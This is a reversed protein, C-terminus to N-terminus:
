HEPLVGFQINHTIHVQKRQLLQHNTGVFTPNKSCFNNKGAAFRGLSHSGQYENSFM